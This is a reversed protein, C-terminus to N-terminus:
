VLNCLEIMEVFKDPVGINIVADKKELYEDEGRFSVHWHSQKPLSEHIKQFYPMDIESLSHGLIYVHKIDNLSSFFDSNNKIIQETDKFSDTFYDYVEDVGQEYSYDYSDSMYEYWKELEEDSLGEPPTEPEVKFENPDIGHGLIIAGSSDNAKGHIYTINSQPILYYKELTESYNFSLYKANNQLSLKISDDIRPTSTAPIIFQRFEECLGSTLAGVKSQVEISFSHWDRDSFDDSSIIPLYDSLDELLEEKNLNALNEEFNAWLDVNNELFYYRQILELLEPNHVQLYESFNSYRTPFGHYLDFGNGIIYLRDM